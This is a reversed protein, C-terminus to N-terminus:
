TPVTLKKVVNKRPLGGLPLKGTNLVWEEVLFQCSATTSDASSPFLKKGVPKCSIFLNRDFLDLVQPSEEIEYKEHMM